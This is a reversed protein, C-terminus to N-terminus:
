LWRAKPGTAITMRTDASRVQPAGGASTALPSCNTAAGEFGAHRPPLYSSRGGCTGPERTAQCELEEFHWRRLRGTSCAILNAAVCVWKGYRRQYDDTYRGQHEVGDHTTYSIRAHIIAFDGLLRIKVDHGKLGTFPRPASMMELFQKKDRLLLDPLSAMFDEALIEELREVDGNQASALFDANLQKLVELDSQTNRADTM